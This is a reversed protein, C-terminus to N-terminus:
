ILMMTTEIEEDFVWGGSASVALSVGIVLDDHGSLARYKQTGNENVIGFTQMEKILLDTHQVNTPICLMKHQLLLNVNGLIKQKEESTPNWAVVKGALEPDSVMKNGMSYTLGKQEVYAQEVNYIKILDKIVKIQEAEPVGKEHWIHELRIPHNPAKSVVCFASYDAKSSSSMAFDCGLYFRRFPLENESLERYELDIAYNILSMPFISDEGSIPNLMYEQEWTWSPKQAKMVNLKEIPYVEPFSSQWAGNDDEYMAPYRYFKWFQDDEALLKLDSFLDDYSIPTGIFLIRGNRAHAMPSTSNWFTNRLKKMNTTSRGDDDTMCDDVIVLDGHLGRTGIPVSYIRHTHESDNESGPMYLELLKDTEKKFKFHAFNPNSLLVDRILGLIRRAMDQNMSQIIIHVPKEARYILWLPYARSFVYTKYFGRSIMIAFNSSSDTELKDIIEKHIKGIPQEVVNKCFLTFSRRYINNADLSIKNM